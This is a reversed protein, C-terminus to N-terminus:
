SSANRKACSSHPSFIDAMKIGLFLAFVSAAGASGIVFGGLSSYLFISFVAVTIFDFSRLIMSKCVVWLIVVYLAVAGLLGYNVLVDIIDMKAAMLIAKNQGAKGQGVVKSALDSKIFFSLNTVARYLRPGSTIDEMKSLAENDKYMKGKLQLKEQERILHYGLRQQYLSKLSSTLNTSFHLTLMISAFIFLALFTKTGKLKMRYLIFLPTIIGIFYFAKTGLIYFNFLNLLFFIIYTRGKNYNYLYYCFFTFLFVSQANGGLYGKYFSMDTYMTTRGFHFFYSLYLNLTVIIVNCHMIVPLRQIFYRHHKSIYHALLIFFAIKVSFYIESIAIAASFRMYNHLPLLFLVSILFLSVFLTIRKNLKKRVVYDYFLLVTLLGRFLVGPHFMAGAVGEEGGLILILFYDLYNFICLYFYVLHTM